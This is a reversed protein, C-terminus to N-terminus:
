FKLDLSLVLNSPDTSWKKPLSVSLLLVYRCDWVFGSV